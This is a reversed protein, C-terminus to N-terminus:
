HSRIYANIKDWENNTIKDATKNSLHLEKVADNLKAWGNEDYIDIMNGIRKSSNVFATAEKKSISAKSDVDWFVSIHSDKLDTSEESLRKYVYRRAERVDDEEPKYNKDTFKPQKGFLYECVKQGSEYLYQEDAHSDTFLKSIKKELGNSMAYLNTSSYKGQDWDEEYYGYGSLDEVIGGITPKYNGYKYQLMMAGLGYVDKNKYYDKAYPYLENRSDTALKLADSYEQEKRIVKISDLLMSSQSGKTKFYEDKSKNSVELIQQRYREKGEPTLTGDLNQFRRVGWKQGKIGHHILVLTGM